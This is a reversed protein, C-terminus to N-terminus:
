INDVSISYKIISFNRSSLIKFQVNVMKTPSVGITVYSEFECAVRFKGDDTGIDFYNAMTNMETALEGLLVKDLKRHSTELFFKIM